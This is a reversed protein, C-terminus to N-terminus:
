RKLAEKFGLIMGEFLGMWYGRNFNVKGNCSNCLTILNGAENNKKNYDIHHVAHNRGNQLGGCLQCRLGDRERIWRKNRTNFEAAYPEFSIGGRWNPHKDGQRSYSPHRRGRAAESMRKKTELSHRAGWFPNKEGQKAESM